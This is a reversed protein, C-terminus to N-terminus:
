SSPPTVDHKGALSDRMGLLLNHRATPNERIAELLLDLEMEKLERVLQNGRQLDLMSVLAKGLGM